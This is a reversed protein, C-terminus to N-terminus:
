QCLNYGVTDYCYQRIHDQLILGRKSDDKAIQIRSGESM